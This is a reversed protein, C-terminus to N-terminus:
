RFTELSRMGKMALRNHLALNDENVKLSYNHLLLNFASLYSLKTTKLKGSMTIM